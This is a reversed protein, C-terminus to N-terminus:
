EWFSGAWQDPEYTNDPDHPRFFRQRAEGPFLDVAEFFVRGQVSYLDVRMFDYGQGLKQALDIMKQLSDPRDQVPGQPLDLCLPLVQWDPSYLTRKPEPFPHDVQIFRCQGHFVFFGYARPLMAHSDLYLGTFMVMPQIGLGSHTSPNNLWQRCLKQINDLSIRIKEPIIRMQGNYNAKMVFREPLEDWNISEPEAVAQYIEPLVDTGVKDQVWQRVKWKDQLTSANPVDESLKRLALKENFTVPNKLDPTYGLAEKIALEEKHIVDPELRSVSDPSLSEKLAPRSLEVKSQCDEAQPHSESSHNEQSCRTSESTECCKKYKKGSGCPCSANRGIKQGRVVPNQERCHEHAIEESERDSDLPPQLNLRQAYAEFRKVVDQQLTRRDFMAGCELARRTAHRYFDDDDMLRYITDLWPRVEAESPILSYNQRFKEPIDFLFGGGNLQEPMGAHNSALVPIGGLQAEAISRGSAENWFSPFLLISTRAYITRVDEQNPIWWINKMKALDIGAQAWQESTMRSEVALFMLDPRERLATNVLRAFLTAGKQLSPNIMTIFGQKRLQPAQTSLVDRPSIQSAEPILTRLVDSKIGLKDQYYQSQFGSPVLVQDFPRFLEPDDYSPNALYFIMTKCNKRAVKILERCLQSGGYTLVVDPKISELAKKAHKFFDRAEEPTLDIGYSSKTYFLQHKVGDRKIKYLKGHNEPAANKEGLISSVPYQEQGDFLTMQVAYTDWGAKALTYLVSRMQCAAGSRRDLSCMPSLWMIKKPRTSQKVQSEFEPEPCSHMHPPACDPQAQVAPQTWTQPQPQIRSNEQSQGPMADQKLSCAKQKVLEMRRRTEPLDNGARAIEAHEMYMGLNDPFKQMGQEIIRDALKLNDQFRHCLALLLYATSPPNNKYERFLLNLRAVAEPWDQREMAEEAHATPKVKPDEQEVEALANSYQEGHPGHSMSDVKQKLTELRKRAEPWDQRSRAVEAYETLLNIDHPFKQVGQQAIKEANDLKEQFRHTASLMQYAQPPTDDRCTMFVKNLIKVATGWDESDMAEQAQSLLDNPNQGRGASTSENFM